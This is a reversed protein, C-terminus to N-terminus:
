AGKVQRRKWRTAAHNFSSTESYGLQEAIAAVSHFGASRLQAAREERVSDLITRFPQGECALHRRLSRESWGFVRAVEAASPYAGAFLALYASVRTALSGPEILSDALLQECQQRYLHRAAVNATPFRFLADENAFMIVCDDGGTEVPCDFFASHSKAVSSRREPLIMRVPKRFFGLNSQLDRVLKVIAALDRDMVFDSVAEPVVAPKLRLCSHPMGPELSLAGFLLTMGQFRIGEQLAEWSSECSVLLMSLPGYCALSFASAAMLGPSVPHTRLTPLAVATAAALVQLIRLEQDRSIWADSRFHAVPIGAQLLPTDVDIGQQRLSELTYILGLM